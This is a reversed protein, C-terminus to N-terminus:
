PQQITKLYTALNAVRLLTSTDGQAARFVPGWIPMEESGHVAFRRDDGTITRQVGVTDFKGNNRRALTTLDPVASKLASAAPGDGKADKGHCAACYAAYTDKGEVSLIAKAPKHEMKTTQAALPLGISLGLAGVLLSVATGINIKM